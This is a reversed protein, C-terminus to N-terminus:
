GTSRPRDPRRSSHRAPAASGASRVMPSNTLNAGRQRRDYRGSAAEGGYRRVPAIGCRKVRREAQEDLWAEVEALSMSDFEDVIKNERREIIWGFLKAIDM